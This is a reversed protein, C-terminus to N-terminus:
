RPVWKTNRWETTCICDGVSCVVTPQIEPLEDEYFNFTTTSDETFSNRCNMFAMGRNDIQLHEIASNCRYGTFNGKMLARANEDFNVDSEAETSFTTEYSGAIIPDLHIDSIYKPLASYDFSNNEWNFHDVQINQHQSRLEREVFSNLVEISENVYKPDIAVNFQYPIKNEKLYEGLTYLHELNAFKYHVSIYLMSFYRANEEWWRMTRSGNTVMVNHGGLSDIFRIYEHLHQFMSPEGGSYSVKITKVNPKHKQVFELYKVVNNKFTDNIPPVYRTGANAGPWCYWCKYNCYDSVMIDLSATETHNTISTIKHNNYLM